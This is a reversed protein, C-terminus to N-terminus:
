SERRRRRRPQRRWVAAADDRSASWGKPLDALQALTSDRQVMCGLSVVQGDEPRNTTGCLFQWDDDDDHVVLLVPRGDQTVPKTTFVARNRGAPFAWSKEDSLVPQREALSEDFSSYWPYRHSKDPWVCQLVPFRVGQYFWLAYGFYEQYHKQEVVRFIVNYGDLVDASEDFDGFKDDGRIEEGIANIMRHMISVSLGFVIVEPHGFNHYLGVSYAFAPGEDDAEVGIVHWGHRQVDALLAHDHDDAPNPLKRKNPNSM